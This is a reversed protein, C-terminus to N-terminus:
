LRGSPGVAAPLPPFMRVRESAIHAICARYSALAQNSGSLSFERTGNATTVRLISGTEFEALFPNQNGVTFMVRGGQNTIGTGHLAPYNDIQVVTYGLQTWVIGQEEYIVAGADKTDTQSLTIAALGRTTRQATQAMCVQQGTNIRTEWVVWQGNNLWDTDAKAASASLALVAAGALLVLKM